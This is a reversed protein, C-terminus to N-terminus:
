RASSGSTTPTGTVRRRARRRSAVLAALGLLASVGSASSCDCGVRLPSLTGPGNPGGDSSGAGGDSSSGGDTPPAAKFAAGILVWHDNLTTWSLATTGGDTIAGGSNDCSTYGGLNDVWLPSETTANVGLGSCVDEIVLDSPDSPGLTLTASTNFADNSAVASFTTSQDVGAASIAGSSLTGQGPMPASLSVIV